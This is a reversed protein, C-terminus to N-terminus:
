DEHSTGGRKGKKVKVVKDNLIVTGLGNNFTVMVAGEGVQFVEGSMTAGNRDHWYVVDGIKINNM